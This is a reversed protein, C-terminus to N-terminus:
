GRQDKRKNTIYRDNKLRRYAICLALPNQAFLFIISLSLFSYYTFPHGGETTATTIEKNDTNGILNNNSYGCRVSVGRDTTAFKFYVDKIWRM